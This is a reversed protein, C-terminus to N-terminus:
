LQSSIYLCSLLLGDNLLIFKTTVKDLDIEIVEDYQCNVDPSLLGRYKNALDAVATIFM